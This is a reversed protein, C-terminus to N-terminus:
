ASRGIAGVASAILRHEADDFRHRLIEDNMMKDALMRVVIVAEPPEIFIPRSGRPRMGNWPAPSDRWIEDGFASRFLYQQGIPKINKETM